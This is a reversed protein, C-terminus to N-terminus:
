MAQNNQNCVLLSLFPYFSWEWPGGEILCEREVKSDKPGVSGGLPWFCSVYYLFVFITWEFLLQISTDEDEMRLFNSWASMKISFWALTNGNQM